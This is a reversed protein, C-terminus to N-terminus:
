PANVCRRTRRARRRGVVVSRTHRPARTRTRSAGAASSRGRRARATTVKNAYRGRPSSAASLVSLLVCARSYCRVILAHSRRASSTDEGAQVDTRERRPTQPTRTNRHARTATRARADIRLRAAEADKREQNGSVTSNFLKEERSRHDIISGGGWAANERTPSPM